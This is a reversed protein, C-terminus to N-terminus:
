YLTDTINLEMEDLPVEGTSWHATLAAAPSFRFLAQFFARYFFFGLGKNAPLRQHDLSLPSKNYRWARHIDAPPFPPVLVSSTSSASGSVTPQAAPDCVEPEVPWWTVGSTSCDPKLTWANDVCWVGAILLGVVQVLWLSRRAVQESLSPIQSTRMSLLGASPGDLWM